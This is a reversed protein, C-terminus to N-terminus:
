DELEKFTVATKAPKTTIAESVIEYYEPENNQIYRLEKLNLSPKYTFLREYLPQPIKSQIDPLKAADISRTLKGITTVQYHDGTLTFSGEVEAGIIDIILEEVQKRHDVAKKEAAKAMSLMTGLEDLTPQDTTNLNLM